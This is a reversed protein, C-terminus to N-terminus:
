RRCTMSVPDFRCDGGATIRPAAAVRTTRGEDDVLRITVLRPMPRPDNAAPLRYEFGISRYHELLPRDSLAAAPFGATAQAPEFRAHLTDGDADARVSLTARVPGVAGLARPPMTVFVFRRPGAIIDPEGAAPPVIQEILNVLIPASAALRQRPEARRSAALERGLSSLTWSLSALLMSGAVMAVLLEILTFGHEASGWLPTFGHEASGWLPTFGNSTM